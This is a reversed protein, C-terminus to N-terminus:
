HFISFPRNKSVLIPAASTLLLVGAFVEFLGLLIFFRMRTMNNRVPDFPELAITWVLILGGTWALTNRSSHRARKQWKASKDKFVVPLEWTFLPVLTLILLVGGVTWLLYAIGSDFGLVLLILFFIASGGFTSIQCLLLLWPITSQVRIM